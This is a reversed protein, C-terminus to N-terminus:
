LDTCHVTLRASSAETKLAREKRERGKKEKEKEGYNICQPSKGIPVIGAVKPCLRRRGQPLLKVVVPERGVQSCLQTVFELKNLDFTAYSLLEGERKEQYM